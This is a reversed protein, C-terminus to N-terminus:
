YYLDIPAVGSRALALQMWRINWTPVSTWYGSFNMCIERWRSCVHLIGMWTLPRTVKYDGYAVHWTKDSDALRLIRVLVEPPLRQTASLYNKQRRLAILEDRAQVIEADIDALSRM